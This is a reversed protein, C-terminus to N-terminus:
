EPRLPVSALWSVTIGLDERVRYPDQGYLPEFILFSRGDLCGLERGVEGFSYTYQEYRSDLQCTLDIETFDVDRHQLWPDSFLDDLEDPHIIIDDDLKDKTQQLVFLRTYTQARATFLIM